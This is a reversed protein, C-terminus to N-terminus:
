DRFLSITAGSSINGVEDIACVRVFYKSRYKSEEYTFSTASGEYIITSGPSTCSSPIAQNGMVARYRTVSTENELFNSWRFIAQGTRLKGQVEGGVPPNRDVIVKLTTPVDSVNGLNDKFWANIKKPGNGRSLGFIFFGDFPRFETCTDGESFCMQSIGSVDSASVVLDVASNRFARQGTTTALAGRPGIMPFELPIAQAFVGDTVNGSEDMACIRYRHTVGSALNTHVFTTDTGEYIPQGFLCSRPAAGANGFVRYVVSSGSDDSVADWSLQVENVGAVARAITESPPILDADAAIEYEEPTDSLERPQVVSPFPKTQVQEADDIVDDVMDDVIDDIHHGGFLDVPNPDTAACAVANECFEGKQAATGDVINMVDVADGTFQQYAGSTEANFIEDDTVAEGCATNVTTLVGLATVTTLMASIKASIKSEKNKQIQRNQNHRPTNQM